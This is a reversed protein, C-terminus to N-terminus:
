TYTFGVEPSVRYVQPPCISSTTPPTGNGPYYFHNQTGPHPCIFLKGWEQYITLNEFIGRVEWLNYVATWLGRLQWFHASQRRLPVAYRYHRYGKAGGGKAGTAGGRCRFYNVAPVIVSYVLLVEQLMGPLWDIKISDILECVKCRYHQWCPYLSVRLTKLM